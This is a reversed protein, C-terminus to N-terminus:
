EEKDGYSLNAFRTYQADFKVKVMGTPGNRQKAVILEAIGREQSEKEYYDDRYIFIINDADQEIAGSERLDSLQPRRDSKGRTEVSRNLQSLAIVPVKLRKALQKLGRSISSIEQERNGASTDGHMLQIYDIAVLALKVGSHELEAKAMMAKGMIDVLSMAPSDDVLIPLQFLAASANTLQTWDRDQLLAPRRLKDSNVTADGCVWRLALQDKPMELSFVIAGYSQYGDADVMSAVNRVINLMLSTKGMGPRAAIITLEGNHLGATKGDLRAFGTPLGTIEKGAGAAETITAFAGRVIKGLREPRSAQDDHNLKFLAEEHTSLLEHLAPREYAHAATSNCTRILSRIRSTERIRKAYEEIDAVAPTKDSLEALYATGGIQQLRGLDCLRGAVSVVDCLKGQAGLWLVADFIQRNAESYFEEPHMWSVLALSAPNYLVSGLLAGEAGLDHPMPKDATATV